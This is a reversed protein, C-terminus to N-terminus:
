ANDKQFQYVENHRSLFTDSAVKEVTEKQGMKFKDEHKDGLGTIDYEYHDPIRRKRKTPRVRRSTDGRASAM